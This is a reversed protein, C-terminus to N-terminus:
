VRAAPTGDRAPGAGGRMGAVAQPGSHGEATFDLVELPQESWDTVPEVVQVPGTGEDVFRARLAETETVVQRMAALFLQPDVSGAIDLYLAANFTANRGSLSQAYWIGAQGATLPLVTASSDSM